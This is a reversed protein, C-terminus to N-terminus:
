ISKRIYVQFEKFFEYARIGLAKDSFNLTAEPFKEKSCHKPDLVCESRKCDFRIGIAKPCDKGECYQSVDRRELTIDVDIIRFLYRGLEANGMNIELNGYEDVKVSQKKFIGDLYIRADTFDNIRIQAFSTTNSMLFFLVVGLLRYLNQKLGHKLSHFSKEKSIYPM